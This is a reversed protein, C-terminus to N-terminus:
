SMLGASKLHQRMIEAVQTSKLTLIRARAVFIIDVPTSIESSVERWAASIIRKARNRQVAGGIKKGATIGIRQASRGKINFYTVLAPDVFSKGRRYMWLFDKNLRIKETKTM